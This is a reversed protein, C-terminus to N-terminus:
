ESAIPIGQEIWGGGLVENGHYFVAAQGPTVAFQSEKFSIDACGDVAPCVVGEVGRHRYRLQIRCSVESEPVVASIWHIGTVTCGSCMVEERTGLVVTNDEACLEKVYLRTLAAVGLGERQGITYRHIGQHVGLKKGSPDIIDGSQKLGSRRAEVFESYHDDPVFCLDQSEPRITVPIGREEIYAKIDTKTRQSLPFISHSLQQQSLRHLFYSQDKRKDQGRFLHYIGNKQTVTAYHGTAIYNCGKEIMDDLMMGFKIIENCRICPSPTRGRTYADVFNEVIDREFDDQMDLIYHPINLFECVRQASAVDERFSGGKCIHATFGVVEYGQDVLLAAAASSDVGGSMGVAIKPKTTTTM